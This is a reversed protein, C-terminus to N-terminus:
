NQIKTEETKSYKLFCVLQLVVGIVLTYFTYISITDALSFWGISSCITAAFLLALSLAIFPAGWNKKLYRIVIAPLLIDVYNTM